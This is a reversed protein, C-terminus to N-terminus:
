DGSIFEPSGLSSVVLGLRRQQPRGIHAKMRTTTMRSATTATAMTMGSCNKTKLVSPLLAVASWLRSWHLVESTQLFPPVLTNVCPTQEHMQVLPKEPGSQVPALDSAQVVM